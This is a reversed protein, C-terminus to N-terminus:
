CQSVMILQMAVVNFPSSMITFYPSAQLTRADKNSRAADIKSTVFMLAVGAQPGCFLLLVVVCSPVLLNCTSFLDFLQTLMRSLECVVSPYFTSVITACVTTAASWIYGIEESSFGYDDLALTSTSYLVAPSVCQILQAAIVFYLYFPIASVSSEAPRCVCVCACACACM